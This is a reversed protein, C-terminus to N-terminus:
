DFSTQFRTAILIVLGMAAFGFEFRADRERAFGFRAFDDCDLGM